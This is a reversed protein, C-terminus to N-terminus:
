KPHGNQLWCNISDIKAQPMVVGQPMSKDIVVTNLVENNHLYPKIGEYTTYNGPGPGSGSHCSICYEDIIAKMHTTYTLGESNAVNCEPANNDKKCSSWLLLGAFAALFPLHKLQM